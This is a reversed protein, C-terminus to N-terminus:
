GAFFADITALLPALADLQMVERRFAAAGDLGRAYCALQTRFAHIGPLEDEGFHALHELLHRRVIPGREARTAPVGGKCERFLWPNGMAGRGIMVADCGTEAVMRLADGKSLVDGNGIVPIAVARKVAAIAGWAAAGAAELRRALEPANLSAADWGSRIKATVPVEGPLARRVAALIQAALEPTRMLAAGAGGKVVKAVPCGMNIDIIGAGRAVAIRAADAMAEPRAGFIQVCFPRELAPDHRLYALTRRQERWLGEASLLETPALDAGLERCIRRFPPDSVAAMPALALPLDGFDYPGIHM